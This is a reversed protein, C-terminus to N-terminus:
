PSSAAHFALLIAGVSAGIVALRYVHRAANPRGKREAVSGCLFLSFSFSVIACSLLPVEYVEEGFFPLLMLCAAGIATTAIGVRLWQRNDFLIAVSMVALGATVVNLSEM